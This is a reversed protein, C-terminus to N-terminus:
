DSGAAAKARRPVRESREEAGTVLRMLVDAISALAEETFVNGPDFTAGVDGPDTLELGFERKLYALDKAARARVKRATEPPLQFRPGAIESLIPKLKVIERQPLRGTLQDVIMAAPMSIRENSDAAGASRAIREIGLLDCLDAIVDGNALRAREFPRVHVNARGFADVWRPLKKSFEFLPLREVLVDLRTNGNKVLEQIWSSVFDVPHRVYVVVSTREAVGDCWRALERCSRPNLNTFNESSFLAKEYRRAALEAAMREWQPETARAVEEATRGRMRHPQMRTPQHHFKTVIFIHNASPPYYLGARALPERREDFCRQITTTGTKAHGIHVFLHGVTRAM